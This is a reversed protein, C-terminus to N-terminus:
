GSLNTNQEYGSAYLRNYKNFHTNPKNVQEL